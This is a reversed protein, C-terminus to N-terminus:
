ILHKKNDKKYFVKSKNFKEFENMNLNDPVNKLSIFKGSYKLMLSNDHTGFILYGLPMKILMYEAENYTNGNYKYSIDGIFEGEFYDLNDISNTAFLSLELINEYCDCIKLDKSLKLLGSKDINFSYLEDERIIVGNYLNFNNKSALKNYDLTKYNLIADRIQDILQSPISRIFDLIINRYRKNAVILFWLSNDFGKEFVM